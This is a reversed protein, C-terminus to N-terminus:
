RRCAPRMPRLAQHGTAPRRNRPRPPAQFPPRRKHHLPRSVRPRLRATRPRHRSPEERHREHGGPPHEQPAAALGPHRPPPDPGQRRRDLLRREDPDRQFVPVRAELAPGTVLDPRYRGVVMSDVSSIQRLRHNPERSPVDVGSGAVGDNTAQAKDVDDAVLMVARSVFGEAVIGSLTLERSRPLDDDAGTATVTFWEFHEIPLHGDPGAVAGPDRVRFYFRRTDQGFDNQPPEADALREDDNENFLTGSAGNADSVRRFARDWLGVQVFVLAPQRDAAGRWRNLDFTGRGSSRRRRRAAEASYGAASGHPSTAVRTTAASSRRPRM